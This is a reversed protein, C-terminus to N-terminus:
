LKLHIISNTNTDLILLKLLSWIPRRHSQTVGFETFRSHIIQIILSMRSRSVSIKVSRGLNPCVERCFAFYVGPTDCEVRASPSLVESTRTEEAKPEEIKEMEPMAALEDIKQTPTLKKAEAVSYTEGVFEPVTALEIFRPRHTLVKVKKRKPAPESPATDKGSTADKRKRGRLPYRYDPYM